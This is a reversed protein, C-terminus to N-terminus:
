GKLGYLSFRSGSGLSQSRAYLSIDTLAATSFWAGSYLHVETISQDNALRGGFCRVTKNKSGQWDLIDIIGVQWGNSSSPSFDMIDVFAQASTSGGGSDSSTVSSGNGQLQHSRYNFGSDGNFRMDGAAGSGTGSRTVLRIQLHKYAAAATGISSFTVSSVASSVLTTTILEFDTPLPAAGGGLFGFPILM